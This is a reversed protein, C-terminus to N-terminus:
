RWPEQMDASSNDDSILDLARVFQSHSSTILAIILKVEEIREALIKHFSQTQSKEEYM